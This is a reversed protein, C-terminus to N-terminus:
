LFRRYLMELYLTATWGYDHMVLHYPSLPNAARKGKRDLNAPETIKDDDYFEFLTGRALYWKEIEQMTEQCIERALDYYGYRELGLIILYNINVWVPGCWM